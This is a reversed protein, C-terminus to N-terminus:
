LSLMILGSIDTMSRSICVCKKFIDIQNTEQRSVIEVSSFILNVVVWVPGFFFAGVLSITNSVEHAIIPTWLNKDYQIKTLSFFIADWFALIDGM